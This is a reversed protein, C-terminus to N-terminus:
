MPWGDDRPAILLNGIPHKSVILGHFHGHHRKRERKCLHKRQKENAEHECTWDTICNVCDWNKVGSRVNKATRPKQPKFSIAHSISFGNPFSRLSKGSMSIWWSKTRARSSCNMGMGWRLSASNLLLCEFVETVSLASAPRLGDNCLLSLTRFLILPMGCPLTPLM